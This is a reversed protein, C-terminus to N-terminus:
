LRSLLLAAHKRDTKRKCINVESKKGHSAIDNCLAINPPRYSSVKARKFQVMGSGSHGGRGRGGKGNITQLNGVGGM